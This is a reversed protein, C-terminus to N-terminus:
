IFNPRAFEGFRETAALDYAIAAEIQTDFTGLYNNSIKAIWRGHGSASVGKYEAKGDNHKKVHRAHAKHDAAVFCEKRFDLETGRMRVVRPAQPFLFRSLSLRKRGRVLAGGSAQCVRWIHTKLRPIDEEDVTLVSHAGNRHEIVLQTGEYRNKFEVPRAM